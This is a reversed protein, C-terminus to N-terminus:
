GDDLNWQWISRELQCISSRRNELIAQVLNRASDETTSLGKGPFRALQLQQGPNGVRTLVMALAWTTAATDRNTQYAEPLPQEYWVVLVKPTELLLGGAELFASFPGETGGSLSVYPQFSASHFSSMGAIANHVCLSFRSPSVDEHGAMAQLMEFYYQSEGHSSYFVSPLDGAHQRCHWAVSCAARALPSLRRSQMMPLFKVDAGGRNCPLVEGGPWHAESSTEEAQWLCWHELTFSLRTEKIAPTGTSKM